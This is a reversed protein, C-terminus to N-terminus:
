TSWRGAAKPRVRHPQGGALKAHTHCALLWKALYPLARSGDPPPTIFTSPPAPWAHRLKSTACGCYVFADGEQPLDLGHVRMGGRVTM